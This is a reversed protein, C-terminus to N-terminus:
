KGPEERSVEQCLSCDGHPWRVPFTVGKKLFRGSAYGAFAREPQGAFLLDRRLGPEPADPLKLAFRKGVRIILLQDGEHLDTRM